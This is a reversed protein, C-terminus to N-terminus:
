ASLMIAHQENEADHQEHDRAADVHSRVQDDLAHLFRVLRSSFDSIRFGFDSLLGFGSVRLLAGTRPNRCESKMRIESKPNRIKQGMFEAAVAELGKAGESKSRLLARLAIR